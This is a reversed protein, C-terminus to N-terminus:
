PVLPKGQIKLSDFLSSNPSSEEKESSSEKVESPSPEPLQTQPTVDACAELVKRLNPEYPAIRAIVNGHALPFQVRLETLEFWLKNDKNGGLFDINVICGVSLDDALVSDIVRNVFKEPDQGTFHVGQGSM